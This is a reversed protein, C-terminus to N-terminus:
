LAVSAAAAAAAAAAGAGAGAASKGWKDIKSLVDENSTTSATGSQQDAAVPRGARAQALTEAAAEKLAHCPVLTKSHMNERTVPSKLPGCRKFWAEINEKEYTHGAACM